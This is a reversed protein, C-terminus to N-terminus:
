SIASHQTGHNEDRNIHLFVFLRSLLYTAVVHCSIATSQAIYENVGLSMSNTLAIVNIGYGIAVVPVYRLFAGLRSGGDRFSIDRHTLFSVPVVLLYGIANAILDPVFQRAVFIVGVGMATNGMGVLLFRRFARDIM